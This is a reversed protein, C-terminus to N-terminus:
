LPKWLGGGTPGVHFVTLADAGLAGIITQDKGLYRPPTIRFLIEGGREANTGFDVTNLDASRVILNRDLAPDIEAAHDNASPSYIIQASTTQRLDRSSSGAKRRAGSNETARRGGDETPNNEALVKKEASLPIEVKEGETRRGRPVYTGFGPRVRTVKAKELAQAKVQARVEENKAPTTVGSGDTPEPTSM